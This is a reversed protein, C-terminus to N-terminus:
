NNKIENNLDKEKIFALIFLALIVGGTLLSTMMTTNLMSYFPTIIAIFIIDLNLYQNFKDLTVLIVIFIVGSIIVGIIGANAYESGIFGTVANTGEKNFYESGILYSALDGNELNYLRGFITDRWYRFNDNNFYDHYYNTLLAPLYAIRRIFLDIIISNKRILFELIGISFVFIFSSLFFRRFLVLSNKFCYILFVFLLTFILMKHGTLIFLLFQIFILIITKKIKKNTLSIYILIPIIVKTSWSFTYNLGFPYSVNSRTEYVDIFNFILRVDINRYNFIVMGILNYVIIIILLIEIPRNIFYVKNDSHKLPFGLVTLLATLSIIITSIILYTNEEFNSFSYLTSIPLYIIVIYVIWLYNSIRNNAPVIIFIIILIFIFTIFSKFVSYEGVFGMYGWKEMLYVEYTLDYLFKLLILSFIYIAMRKLVINAM